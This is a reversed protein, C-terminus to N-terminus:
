GAISHALINGNHAVFSCYFGDLRSIHSIICDYLLHIPSLGFVRKDIARIVNM